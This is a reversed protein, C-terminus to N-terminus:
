GTRRRTYYGQTHFPRHFIRVIAHMMGQRRTRHAHNIANADTEDGCCSDDNVRNIIDHGVVAEGVLVLIEVMGNLQFSIM